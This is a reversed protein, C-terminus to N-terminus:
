SVDDFPTTTGFNFQSWNPLTFSTNVDTGILSAMTVGTDFLYTHNQDGVALYLTATSQSTSSGGAMASGMATAALLGLAIQKLKMHIESHTNIRDQQLADSRASSGTRCVAGTSVVGREGDCHPSPSHRCRRASVQILSRICTRHVHSFKRLRRHCRCT